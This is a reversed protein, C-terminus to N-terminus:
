LMWYHNSESKRISSLRAGVRVTGGAHGADLVQQDEIGV